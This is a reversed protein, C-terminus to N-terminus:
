VQCVEILSSAMGMPRPRMQELPVAGKPPWLLRNFHAQIHDFRRSGVLIRIDVMLDHIESPFCPISRTGQHLKYLTVKCYRKKTKRFVMRCLSQPLGANFYRPRVPTCLIDKTCPYHEAEGTQKKSWPVWYNGLIGRHFPNVAGSFAGKIQEYTTQNTGKSPQFYLMYFMPLFSFVVKSSRMTHLRNKMRKELKTATQLLSTRFDLPNARAIAPNRQPISLFTLGGTCILFPAVKFGCPNQSEPIRFLITLFPQPTYRETPKNERKNVRPIPSNRSFFPLFCFFCFCFLSLSLSFCFLLSLSFRFYFYFLVM